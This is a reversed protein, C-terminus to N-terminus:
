WNEVASAVLYKSKPVCFSWGSKTFREDLHGFATPFRNKGLPAQSFYAPM